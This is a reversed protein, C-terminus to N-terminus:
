IPIIRSLELGKFVTKKFIGAAEFFIPLDVCNANNQAKKEHLARALAGRGL